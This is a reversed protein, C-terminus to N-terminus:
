GGEMNYYGVEIKLPRSVIAKKSPVSLCGEEDDAWDVLDDVHILFPNLCYKIGGHNEQYGKQYCVAEDQLILIFRKDYGVQNAALGGGLYKYFTDSNLM